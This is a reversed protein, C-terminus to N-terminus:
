FSLFHMKFVEHKEVPFDILFITFSYSHVSKTITCTGALRILICIEVYRLTCLPRAVVWQSDHEM